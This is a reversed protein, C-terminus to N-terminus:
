RNRRSHPPPSCWTIWRSYSRNSTPPPEKEYVDIGVRIGKEKVAKILAKEDIVEARSTNILIAGDKMLSLQRESIMRRTKDTLPPVHISIIDSLRMLDDLEVYKIGYFEEKDQPLKRVDNYLIGVEFPILREM